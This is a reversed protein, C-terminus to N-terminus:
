VSLTYTQAKVTFHLGTLDGLRRRENQVLKPSGDVGTSLLHLERVAHGSQFTVRFGLWSDAM